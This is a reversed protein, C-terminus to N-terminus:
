GGKAGRLETLMARREAEIKEPDIEFFQYLLDEIRTHLPVFGGTEFPCTLEQKSTCARGSLCNEFEKGHNHPGFCDDDDHVHESALRLNKTNAAWELFEGIAQSQNRIKLAKDCEPYKTM